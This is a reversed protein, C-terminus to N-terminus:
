AASRRKRVVLLLAGGGVLLLAGIGLPLGISAGTNALGGQDAPPTAAPSTTPAPAESTTTTPQTTPAETTTTTTPPAEVCAKITGSKTFSFGRSGDQDDGAQVAVTYTHAKTADLDNWNKQWSTKFSEDAVSQDDVTVKVTNTVDGNYATLDVKLYSTGDACDASVRYTHASAPVTLALLATGAIAGTALVRRAITTVAM